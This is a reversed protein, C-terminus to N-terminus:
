NRTTFTPSQAAAAGPQHAPRATGPQQVAREATGYPVERPGLPGTKRLAPGCAAAHAAGAGEARGAAPSAAPRRAAPASGRPPLEHRSM